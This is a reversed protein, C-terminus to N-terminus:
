LMLAQSKFVYNEKVSILKRSSKKFEGEKTFLPPYYNFSLNEISQPSGSLEESSVPFDDFVIGLDGTLLWSVFDVFTTDIDIWSVEDAYLACVNGLKSDKVGGLNICYYNGFVDDAILLRGSSLGEGCDKNWDSISRHMEHDFPCGLLRIKSNEVYIGGCSRLYAGIYTRESAKLAEAVKAGEVPNVDILRIERDVNTAVWGQIEKWKDNEARATM